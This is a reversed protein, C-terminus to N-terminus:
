SLEVTAGAEELAKKMKEAEEKPAQPAVEVPASEAMKKAEALGLSPMIQRLAKIVKIKQSGIDKLTVKFENKEEAAGASEAPAAAPAAMAAASVGFKDELTKVLESLELVSMSEIQSIMEDFNKSM